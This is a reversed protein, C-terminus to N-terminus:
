LIAYVPNPLKFSAHAGSPGVLDSFQDGLSAIVTLNKNGDGNGLLLRARAEPKYVSAPRADGPERMTLSLYCPTAAPVDKDENGDCLSGYGAEELNRATAERMEGKDTRGTVFAVSFGAAYADRYLFLTARLPPSSALLARRELAAMPDVDFSSLAADNEKGDEEEGGNSSSSKMMKMWEDANSLSTEDIDFVLVLDRSPRSYFRLVERADGVAEAVDASYDGREFYARVSPWCRPSRQRPQPFAGKPRAAGGGVFHMCSPSPFKPLPPQPPPQPPQPRPQPATGVLSSASASSADLPFRRDLLLMAATAVLVLMVLSAYARRKIAYSRPAPEDDDGSRSPLLFPKTSSSSMTSTISLSFFTHIESIRDAKKESKEKRRIERARERRREGSARGDGSAGAGRGRSLGRAEFCSSGSGRLPRRSCSTSEKKNKKRTTSKKKTSGCREKKGRTM